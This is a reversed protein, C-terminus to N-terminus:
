CVYIYTNISLCVKNLPFFHMEIYFNCFIEFYCANYIECVKENTWDRMVVVIFKSCEIGNDSEFTKKEQEHKAIRFLGGIENESDSDSEAEDKTQSRGAFCIVVHIQNLM